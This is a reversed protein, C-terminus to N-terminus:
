MREKRESYEAPDEIEPPGVVYPADKRGPTPDQRPDQSQIRPQHRYINALQINGADIKSRCVERLGDVPDTSAPKTRTEQEMSMIVTMEDNPSATNRPICASFIHM